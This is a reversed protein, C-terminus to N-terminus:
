VAVQLFYNFSENAQNIFMLDGTIIKCGASKADRLLKTLKPRYIIDMVIPKKRAPLGKLIKKLSPLPSDMTNPWMGVSTTNILINCNAADFDELSGFSYASFERALNKAHAVTRNLISVKAGSKILGYVTARAAGGAGLVVVKKGRIIKISKILSKLVGSVDTNYGYLKGNKNIITNVAGINKAEASVFDLFKIVRQKHPITINAGAFENRFRKMFGALDKASVEQTSYEAAIGKARFWANHVRPSLSHSIPTGIVCFKKM